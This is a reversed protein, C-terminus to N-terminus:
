VATGVTKARRPRRGADVMVAAGRGRAWFYNWIGNLSYGLDQLDARARAPDIQAAAEAAETLVTM